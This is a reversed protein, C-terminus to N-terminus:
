AHMVGCGEAVETLGSRDLDGEYSRIRNNGASGDDIDSAFWAFWM